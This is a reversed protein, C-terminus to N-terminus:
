TVCHWTCMRASVDFGKVIKGTSSNVQYMSSGRTFPLAQNGNEVHWQVGVNGTSVDDSVVDVVFQFSTPLSKAVNFLHSQLENKGNFVGPYLTDEYVCDDAFLAIASAMDRENWYSFYALVTAKGSPFPQVSARLTNFSVLKDFPGM